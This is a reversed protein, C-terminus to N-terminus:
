RSGSVINYEKIKSRLTPRSIGLIQATKALHWKTHELIKVIHKREVEKLSLPTDDPVETCATPKGLFPVIEEDLIVEGRSSIAAQMLVNELQRVNGPWDHETMRLIAKEELTGIRKGLESSIKRITYQILQPIDERRERLPPVYIRSVCLRYYLDERFLGEGVMKWLNRNTAAIVRASAKLTKEGGVRAFEKEQLFRLLKAQTEFPMDGVEDLFITGEGGLEFKGKKTFLAGTFAGKEHGFLESELLTEVIASCNIALFPHNRSASYDHIAKAILEKGTGTEGEILVTVRNESLVGVAKFIQKMQRSNGIIQGNQLVHEAPSMTRDTDPARGRLARNVAMELEEVDIPKTIYESAGLKMATITTEMTHYATIIIVGTGPSKKSLKALVELGNTDPLNVDLITVDPRFSQSLLLGESATAACKVDHGRTGLFMGLLELQSPEDDIILIRGQRM